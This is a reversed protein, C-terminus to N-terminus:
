DIRYRLTQYPILNPLSSQSQQMVVSPLYVVHREGLGFLAFNGSHNVTVVVRNIAADRSV